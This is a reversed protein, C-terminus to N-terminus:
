PVEFYVKVRKGAVPISKISIGSNSGDSWRTNAPISDPTLDYGTQPNSGDWLGANGRDKLGTPRVLHITERGWNGGCQYIENIHWIALGKANLDKEYSTGPWRNELIFYEKTGHNSDYLIYAEAYSEVDNIYNWGSTSVVKPEIWGLKIKSWPDLHSGKAQDAMLSLRGPEPYLEPPLNYTYSQMYKNLDRSTGSSVTGDKYWVYVHDNSGAIGIGAIDQPTKGSPLSYPEPLRYHDLDSSTGASVTGDRYWAYVHDNSGAIGMGVIDNPSKGPPLTYNSPTSYQELNESTGISLTGDKYWAYVHDNSGAIGIGVIDGVSKGTPLSVNKRSRYCDLVRTTGSSVEAQGSLNYWTYVHDDSGAIGMDVITVDKKYPYLDVLGLTQHGLEHAITPFGMNSGGRILYGIQVGKTLSPVPVLLPDTGRGRANGGGPYVWLIALEDATVKGDQNIDYNKFRYPTMKEVQNILWASKKELNPYSYMFEYSSEDWDATVPDDQATLWDTTFAEKFTFKGYSNELFYGRVSDKADYLIKRLSDRSIKPLLGPMIAPASKFTEGGPIKSWEGWHSGPGRIYVIQHIFDDQGLAFVSALKGDPSNMAAPASKFKQTGPIKTWDEWHSGPGRIYVIQHIFDDQGLAFVSALKGDPSNMAAPASKFKQTGPIKTWDEWHSGPGRIYVIQHIFDDQGLAFVSALKGDPSNMAAPASKFKQTGPIKTWDEWHSGPGRIYVIQHIFDDQGLAFVSALKGDPSNMAAPASKFKQTGPIKTWPSWKAGVPENIIRSYFTEYIYGDSGLAFVNQLDGDSSNLVAPASDFSLSGPLPSEATTTHYNGYEGSEKVSFTAQGIKNDNRLVYVNIRDRMQPDVSELLIVALPMEGIVSKVGCYPKSFESM